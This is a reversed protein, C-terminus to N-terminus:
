VMLTIQPFFIGDSKRNSSENGNFVPLQGVNLTSGENSASHGLLGLNMTNKSRHFRFEQNLQCFSPLQHRNLRALHGKGFTNINPAM